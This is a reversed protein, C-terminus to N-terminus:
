DLLRKQGQLSQMHSIRQSCELCGLYKKQPDRLAFYQILIKEPETAGDLKMDIWFEASERTGKKMESIIVEVKAISKGPHCARVDRGLVNDTRRFTRTEHRNWALVKDDADIISFEVPLTELLAALVNEPLKGKLM